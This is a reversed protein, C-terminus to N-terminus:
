MAEFRFSINPWKTRDIKLVRNPDFSRNGHDRRWQYSEPCMIVPLSSLSHTLISNQRCYEELDEFRGERAQIVAGLGDGTKLNDQPWGNLDLALNLSFTRKFGRRAIDLVDFSKLICRQIFEPNLGFAVQLFPLDFSASNFACLTEACEMDFVLEEVLDLYNPRYCVVGDKLEVFRLVKNIGQDPDYLSCVTIKDRVRDLGM